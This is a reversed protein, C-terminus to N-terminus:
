QVKGRMKHLTALYMRRGYHDMGELSIGINMVECVDIFDQLMTISGFTELPIRVSDIDGDNDDYLFGRIVRSLYDGAHYENFFLLTKRILSVEDNSFSECRNLSELEKQLEHYSGEDSFNIKDIREKIFNYVDTSVVM